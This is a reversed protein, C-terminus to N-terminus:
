FGPDDPLIEREPTVILTNDGDTVRYHQRKNALIRFRRADLPVETECFFVRTDDWIFFESTRLRAPDLPLADSFYFVRTGDTGFCQGVERFGTAQVDPLAALQGRGRFGQLSYVRRRDTWFMTDFRHFLWTFSAGEADPVIVYEWIADPNNITYGDRRITSPPSGDALRKQWVHNRDAHFGAETRFTLPDAGPFPIDRRTYSDREFVKGAATHIEGFLRYPDAPTAAAIRAPREQEDRWTLYAKWATRFPKCHYNRRRMSGAADPFEEKVAFTWLRASLHGVLAPEVQDAPLRIVAGGDIRITEYVEPLTSAVVGRGRIGMGALLQLVPWFQDLRDASYHNLIWALFLQDTDPDHHVILIDGDEEGLDLMRSLVHGIRAKGSAIPVQRKFAAALDAATIDCEILVGTPEAM